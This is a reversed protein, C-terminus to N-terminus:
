AAHLAIKELNHDYVSILRTWDYSQAITQAAEILPVTASLNTCIDMIREHLVEEDDYLFHQHLEEPFHGPYALANPLLPICGAAVAEMVSQGFFEQKSTVPMLNAKQLLQEYEKESDAYGFHILETSFEEEIEDFVKPYRAYSEGCVILEFAVGRNKLSRMARFFAEPDKDYEWRHNWLIVPKEYQKKWDFDLRANIGLPLVVSAEWISDVLDKERHDPMAHLLQRIERFFSERNYASNFFLQDACIATTWNTFGYHFDRGEKVDNDQPSWPYSLQNEHFYVAIPPLEKKCLGKFTAVDLMDTTLILDYSEAQQDFARSLTIAAGHMRWKWHRGPLSLIDVKHSSYHRFARAWSAHSGSMFPEILLIKMM